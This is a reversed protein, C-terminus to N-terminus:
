NSVISWVSATGDKSMVDEELTSKVRKGGGEIVFARAKSFGTFCVYANGSAGGGHWAAGYGGSGTGPCSRVKVTGPYAKEDNYASLANDLAAHAAEAAEANLGIGQLSAAAEYVTHPYDSVIPRGNGDMFRAKEALSGGFGKGDSVCASLSGALATAAIIAFIRNKM